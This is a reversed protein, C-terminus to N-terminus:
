QLIIFSRVLYLNTNFLYGTLLSIYKQIRIKTRHVKYNELIHMDAKITMFPSKLFVIYMFYEIILIGIYIYLSGFILFYM